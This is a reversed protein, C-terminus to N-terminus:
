NVAVSECKCLARRHRYVSSYSVKLGADRITKALPEDPLDSSLLKLLASKYPEDLGAVTRGIKCGTEASM